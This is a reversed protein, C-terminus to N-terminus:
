DAETTAQWAVYFASAPPADVRVTFQTATISASDIWYRSVSTWDSVPTVSLGTVSPPSALGHNITVFTTGTAIEASGRTRTAYGINRTVRGDAALANDSLGITTNGTLDNDRIEYESSGAGVYIGFLNGAFDDHPGIRNGRIKFKRTGPAISIGSGGNQAFSGQDFWVDVANSGVFVGDHANLEAQHRIAHFGIIDGDGGLMVGNEIQSSTWVNTLWTRAVAGGAAPDVFIGFQATDFYTHHIYTNVVAQNAGPTMALDKGARIIDCNAIVVADSHLMRIGYSPMQQVQESKVTSTVLDSDMVVDDIVVAVCFGNANAGLVIGASGPAVSSKTANRISGHCIRGISSNILEFGVYPARLDFDSIAFFPANELRVYAGSTRVVDSTIVLGRATFGPSTVNLVPDTAEAAILQAAVGSLGGTFQLTVPKRVYLQGVKYRGAALVLGGHAPLADLMIQWAQTDDAVGDGIAGCAEPTFYTTM